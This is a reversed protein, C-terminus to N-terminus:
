DNAIIEKLEMRDQDTLSFQKKQKLVNLCRNHNRVFICLYEMKLETLLSIMKEEPIEEGEEDRGLFYLAGGALILGVAPWIYKKIDEVM